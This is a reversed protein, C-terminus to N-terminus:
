KSPDNWDATNVFRTNLPYTNGITNLIRTILRGTGTYGRESKTSDVLIRMLRLIQAKYPLLQLTFYWCQDAPILMSMSSLRWLRSLWSTHGHRDLHKTGSLTTSIVSLISVLRVGIYHRILLFPQMRRLPVCALRAMSSNKKLRLPVILWSDPCHRTQGFALLVLWSNVLLVSLMRSLTRRQM